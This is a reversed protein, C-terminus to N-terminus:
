SKSILLISEQRLKRIRSLLLIAARLSYFQIYLNPFSFYLYYLCADEKAPLGKLHECYKTQQFPIKAAVTGGPAPYHISHTVCKM